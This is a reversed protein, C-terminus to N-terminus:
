DFHVLPMSELRLTFDTVIESLEVNRNKIYEIQSRFETKQIEDYGKYLCTNLYSIKEALKKRECTIGNLILQVMEYDLNIISFHNDHFQLNM